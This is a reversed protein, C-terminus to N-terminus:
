LWDQLCSAAFSKKQPPMIEYSKFYGTIGEAVSSRAFLRRVASHRSM